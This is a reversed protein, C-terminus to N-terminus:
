SEELAQCKWCVQKDQFWDLSREKGCRPCIRTEVKNTYKRLPSHEYPMPKLPSGSEFLGDM